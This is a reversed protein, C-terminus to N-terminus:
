EGIGPLAKIGAEKYLAKLDEPNIGAKLRKAISTLQTRAITLYRQTVNEEREFRASLYANLCEEETLLWSM